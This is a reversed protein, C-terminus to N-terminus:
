ENEETQTKKEAPTGNDVKKNLAELRDLVKRQMHKVSDRFKAAPELYKDLEQMNSKSCDIANFFEDTMVLEDYENYRQALLSVRRELCKLAEEQHYQSSLARYPSPERFM